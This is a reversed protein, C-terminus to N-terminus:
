ALTIDITLDLRPTWAKFGIYGYTVVEMGTKGSVMKEDTKIGGPMAMTSVGKVGAVRHGANTWTATGVTADTFTGSRVVYIDVGMWRGVLGNNLVQDSNSFGNTAGAEIIGVLDTNEVVCYLNGAYSEAYGGVKAQINAFITNINAATTFGGTPTTYTGTGAETLSNLVFEDIKKAVNFAMQETRAAFLNFNSLLEQFDMIHEAVIFEDTVDLAEDTTTFDAPTYTGALAQVTVTPTSSYPSQIRKNNSRDVTTIKESVMAGRLLTDLTASRYKDRYVRSAVTNAM